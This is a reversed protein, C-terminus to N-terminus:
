KKSITLGNKKTIDLFINLLKFHQDLTKSFVHVDDVYVIFFKTFSNYIDNMISQFNSPVNKLGFPM